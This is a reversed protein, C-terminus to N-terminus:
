SAWNGFPYTSAYWALVMGFLMWVMGRVLPRPQIFAPIALAFYLNGAQYRAISILSHSAVPLLWEGVGLLWLSWPIRLKKRLFLLPAVLLMALVEQTRYMADVNRGHLTPLGIWDDRFTRWPFVLFRNWRKQAAVWAFAHGLMLKQAVILAVLGLPGGVICAWGVAGPPKERRREWALVAAAAVVILGANRTATAAIGGLLAIPWVGAAVGWLTAVSALGFVSESLFVCFFLTLPSALWFLTAERAVGNVDGEGIQLRRVLRAMLYAAVISAVHNVIIGGALTSGFLTGFLRAAVPFGPFYPVTTDFGYGAYYGKEALRSYQYADWQFLGNLLFNHPFFARDTCRPGTCSFHQGTLWVFVGLAVRTVLYCAVARALDAARSSGHALLDVLRRM